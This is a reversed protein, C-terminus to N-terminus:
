GNGRNMRTRYWEHFRFVDDEQPVLRGQTHPLARLGRQNLECVRADERLLQTVFDVAPQPNFDPANLAAESYLWESRVATHEPGVPVISVQRVYDRHAVIFMTPLLTLFTYGINREDVTLGPFTPGHAKGDVTWSEIGAAVGEAM